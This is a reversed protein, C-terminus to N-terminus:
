LRIHSYGFILQVWCADFCCTFHKNYPTVVRAHAYHISRSTNAPTWGVARSQGLVYVVCDRFLPPSLFVASPTLLLLLLLLLCLPLLLLCCM